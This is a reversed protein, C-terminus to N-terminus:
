LQKAAPDNHLAFTLTSKPSRVCPMTIAALRKREVGTWNSQILHQSVLRTQANPVVSIIIVIIIVTSLLSQGHAPDSPENGAPNQEEVDCTRFNVFPSSILYPPQCHTNLIKRHIVLFRFLFRSSIFPLLFYPDTHFLSVFFSLGNSIHTVYSSLLSATQIHLM